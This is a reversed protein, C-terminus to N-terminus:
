RRREGDESGSRVADSQIAAGVYIWRRLSTLLFQPRDSYGGACLLIPTRQSQLLWPKEYHSESGPGSPTHRRHRRRLHTRMNHM